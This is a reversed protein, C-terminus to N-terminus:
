YTSHQEMCEKLEVFRNMHGDVKRSAELIEDSTLNRGEEILRELKKSDMEM